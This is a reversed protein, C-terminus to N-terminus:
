RYSRGLMIKGSLMVPEFGFIGEAAESIFFVLCASASALFLFSLSVESSAGELFFNFVLAEFDEFFSCAAAGSGRMTSGM